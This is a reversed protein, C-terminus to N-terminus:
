LELRKDTFVGIQCHAHYNFGEGHLHILENEGGMYQAVSSLRRALNSWDFHTMTFTKAEKGDRDENWVRADFARQWYHTSSKDDRWVDTVYIKKDALSGALLVFAQFHCNAHAAELFESEVEPSKFSYWLRIREDFFTNV